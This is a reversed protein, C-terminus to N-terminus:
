TAEKAADAVTKVVTLVDFPKVIYDDFGLRLAADISSPMADASFAAILGGIEDGKPAPLSAAYDREAIKKVAVALDQVPQRVLIEILLGTGFLVLCFAGGLM